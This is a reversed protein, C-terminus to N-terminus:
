CAENFEEEVDSVPIRIEDLYKGATDALFAKCTDWDSRVLCILYRYLPFWVPDAEEFLEEYEGSWLLYQELIEGVEEPDDPETQLAFTSEESRYFQVTDEVEAMSLYFPAEGDPVIKAEAVVASLFMDDVVDCQASEILYKSM